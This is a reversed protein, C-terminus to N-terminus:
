AFVTVRYANSAPATAFTLTVVSTSTKVVDCEVEEFTSADHVSVHIDRTGLSHTVAIATTSGDGINAAFKRVQRSDDIITQNGSLTLGAGLNARFDSGVLQVGLSATYATTGGFQAWVTTTTGITIVGNTTNTWATDANVTGESVMVTTNPGLETGGDADLTRTPAGSANVTYLGNDAGTTQNKLLIRDGTALTVGDIVQSNAYATALTGNATTAARVAPKWALGNVLGDVYAKNAGDTSASPSAMNVAKQSTLDIGNLFKRGAM